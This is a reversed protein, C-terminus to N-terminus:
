GTVSYDTQGVDTVAIPNDAVVIDGFDATTPYAVNYVNDAKETNRNYLLFNKGTLSITSHVTIVGHFLPQTEIGVIDNTADYIQTRIEELASFKNHNKLIKYHIFQRYTPNDMLATVAQPADYVWWRGNDPQVGATDPAFYYQATYDYYERKQGVINGLVNLAWTGAKALTMGDILGVIASQLEQVELLFCKLIENYFYSDAYESLVKKTGEAVCDRKLESVDIIPIAM